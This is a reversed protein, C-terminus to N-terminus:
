SSDAVKEASPDEGGSGQREEQQSSIVTHQNHMAPKHAIIAM